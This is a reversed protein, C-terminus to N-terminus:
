LEIESYFIWNGRIIQLEYYGELEFPLSLTSVESPIVISYIVEDEENLLQLICSDCSSVFYLTHGDMYVVPPNVPTKHAGHGPTSPNIRYTMFPIKHGQNDDSQAYIVFPMSLICLLTLLRKKM